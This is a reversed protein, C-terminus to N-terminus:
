SAVADDASSSATPAGADAEDDWQVAIGAAGPGAHAGLAPSVAVVPVSDAGFRERLRRAYREALEPADAHGVLFRVNRHGAVDREIMRLVREMVRDPGGFVKAAPVARGDADITLVPRMHLVRALLGRMPSVRGGRVLHRMTAVSVYVRTSRVLREALARLSELSEGRQAAEAVREVVLGLGATVSRSDVVEVRLGEGRANVTEAARQAAQLTGSLASSLGVVLAERHSEAVAEFVRLFDGPSPQSTTPPNPAEALKRYFDRPTITVKDVYTESGFMVLIPVVHIGLRIITEPPLDCASDTVIAVTRLEPDHHARHHQAHMDDARTDSVTGFRALEAFVAEPDNTHVHVRVRRDSGAVILSDGYPALAKQIARNDIGEGRVFAQTCYRFMIAEPAEEVEARASSLDLEGSAVREVRGTRVFQLAGELMHVFGQAGADVVGARALVRLKEPTRQLSEGAAQLSDRLLRPFSRTRRASRQVHDAWDQIVTLITGERPEAIAERARRAAHRVSEAFEEISVHRRGAFRESLGQFFQALIAGSNGRAGMVARDALTETVTGIDEAKCERAGEAISQMTLAMNTGTDSDPVPFVNIDNLTERKQILRQAAAIVARRFRHGDLTQLPRRTM